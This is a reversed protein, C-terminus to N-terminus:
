ILFALLLVIYVGNSIYNSFCNLSIIGNILSSSYQYQTLIGNFQTLDTIGVCATSQITSGVFNTILYCCKGYTTASTTDASCSAFTAPLNTTNIGCPVSVPLATSVSASAATSASATSTSTKATSASAASAPTTESVILGILCLYVTIYKIQLM